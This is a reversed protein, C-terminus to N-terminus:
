VEETHKCKPYAACSWWRGRVSMVEGCEPCTHAEFDPCNSKRKNLSKDHKLCYDPEFDSGLYNNKPGFHACIACARNRKCSNREHRLVSVKSLSVMHCYECQWATVQKPM